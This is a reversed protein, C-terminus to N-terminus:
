SVEADHTEQSSVDFLPRGLIVRGLVWECTGVCVGVSVCMCVRAYFRSMKEKLKSNISFIISGPFREETVSNM